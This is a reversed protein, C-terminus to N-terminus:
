QDRVHKIRRDGVIREILNAMANPKSHRTISINPTAILTTNGSNRDFKYFTSGYM